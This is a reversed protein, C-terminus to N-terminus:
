SNQVDLPKLPVKVDALSSAPTSSLVISGNGSASAVGNGGSAGIGEGEEVMWDVEISITGIEVLHPGIMRSLHLRMPEFVGRGYVDSAMFILGLTGDRPSLAFHGLGKTPTFAMSLGFQYGPVRQVSRFSGEPNYPMSLASRALLQYVPYYGLQRRPFIPEMHFILDMASGLGPSASIATENGAAVEASDIFASGIEDYNRKLTVDLEYTQEDSRIHNLVVYLSAAMDAYTSSGKPNFMQIVAARPHSDVSYKAQGPADGSFPAHLTIQAIAHVIGYFFDYKAITARPRITKFDVWLGIPILPDRSPSGDGSSLSRGM